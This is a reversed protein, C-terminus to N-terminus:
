NEDERYEAGLKNLVEGATEGPFGRRILYGYVKKFRIEEDLGAHRSFVKLGANYAAEYEKEPPLMDDLVKEATEESVRKKLLEAKFYKRGAPRASMRAEIFDRAFRGDDLCGTRELTKIVDSIIGAKVGKKKLREAIESHSRQRYGLLRFAYQKASDADM